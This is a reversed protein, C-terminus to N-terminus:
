LIVVLFDPRQSVLTLIIRSKGIEWELTMFYEPQFNLLNELGALDREVINGLIEAKDRYQLYFTAWRIQTKGALYNIIIQDYDEEKLLHIIASQFAQRTRQVSPGHENM